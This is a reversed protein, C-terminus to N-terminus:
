KESSALPALTVPDIGTVGEKELIARFRKVAALRAARSRIRAVKLGLAALEGHFSPPKVAVLDRGVCWDLFAAYLIHPRDAYAAECPEIVGCSVFRQVLRDRQKEALKRARRGPSSSM